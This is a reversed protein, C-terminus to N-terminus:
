VQEPPGVILPDPKGVVEPDKGPYDLTSLVWRLATASERYHGLVGRVGLVQM